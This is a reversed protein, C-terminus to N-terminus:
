KAEWLCGLYEYDSTNDPGSLVAVFWPPEKTDGPKAKAKSVKYTFRAGSKLSTLTFRANGALAFAASEASLEGEGHFSTTDRREWAVGLEDACHPGFGCDVSEPVTLPRGCRGCAGQHHITLQALKKEDQLQAAELWWSFARVSPAERGIRSKRGHTYRVRIARLAEIETPMGVEKEWQAVM